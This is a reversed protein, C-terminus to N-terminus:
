QRTFARHMNPNYKFKLKSRQRPSGLFSSLHTKFQNLTASNVAADSLGNWDDIVRNSFFYKRCDLHARPKVLKLSHGRTISNTNREFFINSDITTTGKMIKYTEILDARRRREEHTTIGLAKLREPYNLNHLSPIM